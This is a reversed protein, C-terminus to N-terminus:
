HKQSVALLATLAIRLMNTDLGTPHEWLIRALGHLTEPGANSAASEILRLGAAADKHQKLVGFAAVLANVRLHDNSSDVVYPELIEVAKEAFAAETFVMGALANMGSLRRDDVYAKIFEVAGAVDNAAQWLFM